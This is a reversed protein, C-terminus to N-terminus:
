EAAVAVSPYAEALAQLTRGLRGKLEAALAQASQVDGARAAAEVQEVLRALWLFGFNVSTSKLDHAARLVEPALIDIHGQTLLEVQGRAQTVYERLIESLYESGLQSQLSELARPELVPPSDGATPVAGTAAAPAVSRAQGGGVVIDCLTQDLLDPDMPKALYATMGAARCREEEGSLASATLAVVPVRGRADALARIRRTAEYGDMGPMNVDMLIADFGGRGAQAVAEYGDCAITVRHGRRELFASAVKRNVPNDEALLVHLAGVRPPEPAVTGAPVTAAVADAPKLPLEFWFTSGQGEVSIVGIRGGMLDVLRQCIALGLGTGGYRRSISSDAQSFASFLRECADPPIGIGTDSVEFRIGVTGAALAPLGYTRGVRVAVEGRETFKIANSLLNLLVQRLRNADGVLIAPVDEATDLTLVIGRERARGDLLQVVSRSLRGIDFGGEDLLMRGAELKSLDLVDNLITMLAEGSYRITEAWDRQEESLPSELLLRVMGLIGNMPTRIEHSMVAVFESKARAAAEAHEKALRLAEEAQKRSSIDYLWILLAYDNEYQIPQMSLLSWFVSGDAHKLQVERDRVDVGRTVERVLADRDTIDAYLEQARYGILQEPQLGTMEAMRSNGFLLRGDLRSMAVGVPSTELITRLRKESERLEGEVRKRERAYAIARELLEGRVQGKILYDQAGAQVAQLGIHPDDLGTLVVVPLDSAAEMFRRVTEMGRSDPLGMDLLAVDFPREAVLALGEALTEAGSVEYVGPAADELEFQVLAADAPNDDIVLVKCANM